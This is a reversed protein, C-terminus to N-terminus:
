SSELVRVQGLGHTTKTGIGTYFAFHLLRNLHCAAQVDSTDLLRYELKGLGGTYLQRQFAVTASQWHWIRGVVVNREVWEEFARGWQQGSLRDWRTRVGALAMRPLPFIEVRRTGNAAEGWRIATPSAFDLVWRSAATQQGALADLTTYGAWPHSEAAGLVETITCAIGGLQIQPQTNALLRKVMIAFLRDDLLTVRLRGEDGSQVAVGDGQNQRGPPPQGLGMLPSLTFAAREQADHMQASLEADVAAIMAYFAAHAKEAVSGTLFGPQLATLKLILSRFIM